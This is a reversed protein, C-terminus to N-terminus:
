HALFVPVVRSRTRGKSATLLIFAFPVIYVIGIVIMTLLDPWVASIRKRVKM